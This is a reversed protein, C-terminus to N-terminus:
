TKGYKFCVYICINIYKSTCLKKICQSASTIVRTFCQCFTAIFYSSAKIEQQRSAPEFSKSIFSGQKREETQWQSMTHSLVFQKHAQSILAETLRKVFTCPTILILRPPM